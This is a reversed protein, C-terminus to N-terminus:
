RLADLPFRFVQGAPESPLWLSDGSVVPSDPDFGDPLPQVRGTPGDPALEELRAPRDISRGEVGWMRDGVRVIGGILDAPVTFTSTAGTAPDAVVVRTNTGDWVRLWVTGGPGITMPGLPPDGPPLAIPDREFRTAADFGRLAGPSAPDLYWVTEGDTTFSTALPVVLEKTGSSPDIRYLGGDEGNAVWLDDAWAMAGPHALFVSPLERGTTADARTLRGGPNDSGWVTGDHELVSSWSGTPIGLWVSRTTGDGAAEIAVGEGGIWVGDTAAGLSIAGAAGPVDIIASPGFPAPVRPRSGVALAVAVLTLLAVAVVLALRPRVLPPTTPVGILPARLAALRRRQPTRAIADLIAPATAAGSGGAAEEFWAGIRLDLEDRATM